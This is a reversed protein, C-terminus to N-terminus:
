KPLKCEEDCVFTQREDGRIHLSLRPKVRVERRAITCGTAAPDKCTAARFGEYTRRADDRSFALPRKKTHKTVENHMDYIFTFFSERNDFIRRHFGAQLANPWFNDRCIRCPLTEQISKLFTLMRRRDKGTMRAPSNAATMYLVHWLSPGWATTVMGNSSSSTYM